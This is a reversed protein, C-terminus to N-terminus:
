FSVRTATGMIGTTIETVMITTATIIRITAAIITTEAETTIEAAIITTLHIILAATIAILVTDLCSFNSLNTLEVQGYSGLGFL